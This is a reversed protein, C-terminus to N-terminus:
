WICQLRSQLSPLQPQVAGVISIIRLARRQLKDLQAQQKKSCGVLLVGGYELCPRVLITYVTGLDETPLGNRALGNFFHLCKSAKRVSQEVHTDGSLNSDLHFGIYKTITVVTKEQGELILTAPQPSKGNLLMNNSTDWEELQKAELGM